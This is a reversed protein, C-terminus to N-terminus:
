KKLMASYQKHDMADIEKEISRLLLLIAVISVALFELPFYLLAVIFVALSIVTSGAITLMGHLNRSQHEM